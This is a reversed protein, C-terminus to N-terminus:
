GAKSWITLWRALYRVRVRPLTEIGTVRRTGDKPPIPEGSCWESDVSVYQTCVAPSCTTTGDV